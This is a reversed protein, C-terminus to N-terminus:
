SRTASAHGKGWPQNGPPIRTACTDPQKALQHANKACRRIIRYVNTCSGGCKRLVQDILYTMMAGLNCDKLWASM